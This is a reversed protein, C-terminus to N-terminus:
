TSAPLRYARGPDGARRALAKLLRVPPRALGGAQGPSALEGRILRTVVTWLVPLRALEFATRPYRDMAVKASWSASVMPSLTRALTAAYPEMTEARGGLLELATAFALRGSLFAEYMGDGSLPDVLGGADGILAARGRALQSDPKRMPLRYGRTETLTAVDVGHAACLSALRERLRPGESEWGGIGFNVHDAKPFVWGYGGPCCGIHLVLRGTFRERSVAGGYPLNGELAVGLEPAGGLGLSRATVGNVGDAGLVLAAEITEGGVEVRAADADISVGTVRADERFEAGVAVAQEVLFADLRRRQTMFCLPADSRRTFGRGYGLRLEFSGVVDEVVPEVSFPLQRVARETLGGGCPKDRPFRARDLL